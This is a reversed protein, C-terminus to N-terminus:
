ANILKMSLGAGAAAAGPEGPTYARPVRGQLAQLVLCQTCPLNLRQQTPCTPHGHHLQHHAPTGGGRLGNGVRQHHM